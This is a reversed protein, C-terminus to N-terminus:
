RLIVPCLAVKFGSSKSKIVMPAKPSAFTMSIEDDSFARISELLLKSSFGIQIDEPLESILSVHEAYSADSCEVSLKLDKGTINCIAPATDNVCMKARATAEALAKRDAEVFNDSVSFMREYPFYSGNILRSYIVYKETKLIAFSKDYSIEIDDTVGMSILKRVATKPLIVSIDGDGQTEIQDWAIVHGDLAVVDLVGKGGKLSIGTMMVNPNRDSAAFLVNGFAKIIEKGPLAIVKASDSMPRFFSFTEPDWSHFKNKIYDTQITITNTGAEPLIELEGEPLSKILDFAKEPIIFEEGGPAELKVQITLEMNSATLYGDKVLAGGLAPFQDNKQTISKVKDIAASLEYKRIKM